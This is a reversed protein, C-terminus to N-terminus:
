AAADRNETEPAVGLEKMAQDEDQHAIFMIIKPNSPDTEQVFYSVDFEVPKDGLKKFTAAWHITVMSYQDSIRTEKMSVIRAGTQGIGRYFDAAQHSLKMFEERGQAISGKPGASIFHEAFMPVQKEIELKNFAKEYEAFLQKTAAEM